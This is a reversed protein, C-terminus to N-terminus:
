TTAAGGEIAQHPLVFQLKRGDLTPRRTVIALCCYLTQRPLGGLEGERKDKGLTNSIETTLEYFRNINMHNSSGTNERFQIQEEGILITQLSLPHTALVRPNTIGENNPANGTLKRQIQPPRLKHRHNTPRLSDNTQLQGPPVISAHLPTQIPLAQPLNLHIKPLDTAM